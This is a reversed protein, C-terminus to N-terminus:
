RWEGDSLCYQIAQELTETTKVVLDVKVITFHVGCYISFNNITICDGDVVVECKIM